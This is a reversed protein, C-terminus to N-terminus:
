GHHLLAVWAAAATAIACALLGFQVWRNLMRGRAVEITHTAERQAEAAAHAARGLKDAAALASQMAHLKGAVSRSWEVSEGGNVQDDLHEHDARLTALNAELTAVREGMTPM